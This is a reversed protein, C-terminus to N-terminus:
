RASITGGCSPRPRTRLQHNMAGGTSQHGGRADDEGHVTSPRSESAQHTEGECPAVQLGQTSHPLAYRQRAEGSPTTETSGSHGVARADSKTGIPLHRRATDTPTAPAPATSSQRPPPRQATETSPSMKPSLRSSPSARPRQKGPQPRRTVNGLM